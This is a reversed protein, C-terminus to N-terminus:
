WSPWIARRSDLRPQSPAGHFEPLARGGGGWSRRRGRAPMVADGFAAFGARPGLGDSVCCCRRNGLRPSGTQRLLGLSDTKRRGPLDGGDRNLEDPGRSRREGRERERWGQERSGRNDRAGRQGNAVAAPWSRNTASKAETPARTGDGLSRPLKRPSRWCDPQRPHASNRM